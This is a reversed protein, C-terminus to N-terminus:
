SQRHGVPQPDESERPLHKGQPDTLANVYHHELEIHKVCARSTCEPTHGTDYGLPLPAGHKLIMFVRCAKIKVHQKKYRFNICPYGESMSGKYILCGEVPTIRAQLRAM